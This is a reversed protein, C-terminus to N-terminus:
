WELKSYTLTWVNKNLMNCNFNLKYEDYKYFTSSINENPECVHKVDVLCM